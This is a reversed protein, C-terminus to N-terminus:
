SPMRGRCRDVFAVIIPDDPGDPLWGVPLEAEMLDQSAVLTADEDLHDKLDIEWRGITRAVRSRSADDPPYQWGEPIGHRLERVLLDRLLRPVTNTRIAEELLMYKVQIGAVDDSGLEKALEVLYVGVRDAM